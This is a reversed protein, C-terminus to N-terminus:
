NTAGSAIGSRRKKRSKGLSICQGLDSIFDDTHIETVRPRPQQPLLYRVYTYSGWANSITHPGDLVRAGNPPSVTLNDPVMVSERVPRKLNRSPTWSQSGVPPRQKTLYRAVDEYTEGDSLFPEIEVNVGYPWCRRIDNYDEGTGNIVLHHHYRTPEGHKTMDEINKVYRLEEGRQQRLRRLRRFFDAICRQAGAWTDPLHADDYTLTVWLDGADFNAALVAECKQWSQRRNLRQRAESSIKTKAARVRQPDSPMAQDYIVASVLRGATVTTLRKNHAM